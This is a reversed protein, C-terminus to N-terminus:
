YEGGPLSEAEGLTANLDSLLDDLPLDHMVAAASLSEMSAALCQACALGHREFVRVASPHASLVDSVLMDATVLV